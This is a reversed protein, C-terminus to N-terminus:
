LLINLYTWSMVFSTFPGHTYSTYRVLGGSKPLSSTVEGWTLLLFFVLVGAIIWSLISAPGAYLAAASAGFLWGSGIMGGIALFFLDWTSLKRNLKKDTKAGEIERQYDEM